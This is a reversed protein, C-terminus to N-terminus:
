VTIRMTILVVLMLFARSCLARMVAGAESPQIVNRAVGRHSLIFSECIASDQYHKLQRGKEHEERRTLVAWLTAALASLVSLIQVANM